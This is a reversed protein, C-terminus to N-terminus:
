HRNRSNFLTYFGNTGVTFDELRYLIEAQIMLQFMVNSRGNKQSEKSLDQIAADSLLRINTDFIIRLIDDRINDGARLISALHAVYVDAFATNDNHLTFALLNRQITRDDAKMARWTEVQEQTVVSLQSLIRPSVRVLFNFFPAFDPRVSDWQYRLYMQIVQAPIPDNEDLARQLIRMSFRYFDENGAFRILTVSPIEVLNSIKALLYPNRVFPYALILFKNRLRAPYINQEIRKVEGLDPPNRQFYAAFADVYTEPLRNLLANNGRFSFGIPFDQM